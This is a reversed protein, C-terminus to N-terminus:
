KSCLYSFGSLTQKKLYLYESLSDKFETIFGVVRDEKAKENRYELAEWM